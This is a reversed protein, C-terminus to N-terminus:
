GPRGSVPYKAVLRRVTNANRVTMAVGLLKELRAGSFESESMRTRCLWYLERKHFRFEDVASVCDLLKKQSEAAPERRLFAIFLTNDTIELEAAPFANHSVIAALEGVSRIFTAVNYGLEQQLHKELRAELIETRTPSEFIVNGSAIFTEVNTLELAQFAQRLREMKVVRRGVNVARLFAVHRAMARIIAQNPRLADPIKTGLSGIEHVLHFLASPASNLGM